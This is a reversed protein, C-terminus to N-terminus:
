DIHLVSFLELINTVGVTPKQVFITKFPSLASAHDTGGRM